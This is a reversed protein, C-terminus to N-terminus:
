LEPFEPEAVDLEGAKCRGATEAGTSEVGEIEGDEAGDEAGDDM